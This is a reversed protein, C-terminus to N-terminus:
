QGHKGLALMQLCEIFREYNPGTSRFFTEDIGEVVPVCLQIKAVGSKTMHLAYARADSPHDKRQILKKSILTKVLSSVMMKDMSLQNAIDQQTVNKGTSSLYSVAALVSFQAQTIGYSELKARLARQWNLFARWFLLGPSAHEGEYISGLLEPKKSM